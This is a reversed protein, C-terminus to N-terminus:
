RTSALLNVRVVVKRQVPVAVRVQKKVGLDRNVLTLTQTGSPLKIPAMPTVGLRKGNHIVESGPSVRLVVTGNSSRRAAATGSKRRAPEPAEAAAPEQAVAPGTPVPPVSSAVTVPQGQPLAPVLAQAKPASPFRLVPLVLSVATAMIAIGAAVGLWPSAVRPRFAPGKVGFWRGSIAKLRPLPSRKLFAPAPTIPSIVEPEDGYLGRLLERVGEQPVGGSSLAFSELAASMSEATRFREQPNKSIARHIIEELEVPLGPRLERLPKPPAELISRILAGQSAGHFPRGGSLFEYLVIGMAYIDSRPTAQQGSLLEPAMYSFKGKVTGPGTTEISNSAKAVGFDVMKVSGNFDVLVNDPSVDRHVIHLPAGNEDALTHAYHLGKLAQACIWAALDAPVEVRREQLHRRISRLDVGHVFEMAMFYTGDQEGLEFIQAVNPHSLRAALRAENLFMAVFHPDRGLHSLMRKVVMTKAFGAPGEQRALFVEGMGGTALLKLLRYRGLQIDQM